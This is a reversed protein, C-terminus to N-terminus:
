KDQIIFKRTAEIKRKNLFYYLPYLTEKVKSKYRGVFDPGGRKEKNNVVYPATNKILLGENENVKKLINQVKNNIDDLPTGKWQRFIIKGYRELINRNDLFERQPYFAFHVSVVDGNWCNAAGIQTPYICSLFEEDDGPVIGGIKKLDKGFWLVANISFRTMAMPQNGIHLESWKGSALFNDMFWEHLQVAFYGNKWLIPHNAFSKYYNNLTLKHRVQLLYTTLSNNIVLPSVLFYEPNDIRFDVMKRIGDPEIWILDDDIKFYIADEEVCGKYFANISKIGDVVGDPQWVLNIKPFEAALRRFFEIDTGNLTNVWVDYRDVIDCALITPVLYQMYRRRGAATNIVIKHGRYM